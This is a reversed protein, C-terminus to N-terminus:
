PQPQCLLGSKHTSPDTVAVTGVHVPVVNIPILNYPSLAFPPVDTSTIASALAGLTGTTTAKGETGSVLGSFTLSYDDWGALNQGYQMNFYALGFVDTTNSGASKPTIAVDATYPELKGSNNQDEKIAGAYTELVGNRNIDENDCTDVVIQTWPGGGTWYGRYFRPLDVSGTVLVGQIPQGVSDVVQVTFPQTYTLKVDDVEIKNSHFISVSVGNQAVTINATTANPCTGAAFDTESWCARITMQQNGSGRTGPIYSTLAVGNGDTYVPNSGSTLTGGIQNPDGNLDFRVRVNSIPANGTGLFLGRLAVQNTTSGAANVNVTAPNAALSASTVTGSAPSTSSSSLTVTTATTVGGASASIVATPSSPATYAYPYVGNADTVGSAPSGGNLTVAIPENVIPVGAKDALLFQVTAAAGPAASSPTAQLQAGTVDVKVTKTISGSTVVVDITRDSRDAGIGLVGTLQGTGTATTTGSATIVGNRDPVITVPAGAVINRSSDVATVTVTATEAGTDAISSKDVTVILDSASPPPPPTPTSSQPAGGASCGAVTAGVAVTAFLLTLQKIGQFNM